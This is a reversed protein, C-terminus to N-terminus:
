VLNISNLNYIKSFFIKKGNYKKKSINISKFESISFNWNEQLNQTYFDLGYKEKKVLTYSFNFNEFKIHEKRLSFLKPLFQKKVLQIIKVNKKKKSFIFVNKLLWISLLGITNKWKSQPNNLYSFCEIPANTNKNYVYIPNSFFLKLIIRKSSLDWFIIFNDSFQCYFPLKIVESSLKGFVNSILTKPPPFEKLSRENNSNLNMLLIKRQCFNKKFVNFKLMKIISKLESLYKLKKKQDFWLLVKKFKTSFFLLYEDSEFCLSKKFYNMYWSKSISINHVSFLCRMEVIFKESNFIIIENFNNSFKIESMVNNYHFFTFRGTM